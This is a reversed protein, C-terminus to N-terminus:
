VFVDSLIQNSGDTFHAIVMVHDQNETAAGSLVMVSGVDPTVPTGTISLAGGPSVTYFPTANPAIITIHSQTIM